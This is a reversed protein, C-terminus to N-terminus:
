ARRYHDMRSFVHPTSPQLNVYLASRRRRPRGITKNKEVRDDGSDCGGGDSSRSPRLRHHQRHTQHQHYHSVSRCKGFDCAVGGPSVKAGLCQSPSRCPAPLSPQHRFCSIASLFCSVPSLPCSVPSLLCSVPSLFCSVPSLLCPILSM